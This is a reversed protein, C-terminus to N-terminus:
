IPTWPRVGEKPVSESGEAALQVHNLWVGLTFAQWVALADSETPQALFRERTSELAAEAVFRGLFKGDGGEPHGLRGRTARFMRAMFNPSLNAKGGRWRIAPPLIGDMAQRMVFRTWGHRIKQDAPMALCLEALRRDFFPYRPEISVVAAARDAVELVLPIIGQTLSRYHFRKASISAGRHVPEQQRVREDVGMRRAFDPNLLGAKAARSGNRPRVMRWARRVFDPALPRLAHSKLIVWPSRGFNRSLGHIEQALRWWRGKRALEGLYGIGHSVTSDGDLGDLLVRVGRQQAKRYLGWHLFLNPAYFPEDQQELVREPDELPDLLDGRVFDHRLGGAALVAQIYEREDCEPVDDFVASFTHLPGGGHEQLLRRAICVISSSDLGGSLMSGVPFASRLRCRVAETFIERFAEAYQADSKMRIERSPDLAWYREM